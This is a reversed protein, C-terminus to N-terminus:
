TEDITLEPEPYLAAGQVIAGHVVAVAKVLYALFVLPVLPWDRRRYGLWLRMNLWTGVAAYAPALPIFAMAFALRRAYSARPRGPSSQALSPQVRSSQVASPQGVSPEGLRVAFTHLGWRYQHRFVARFTTRDFHVIRPFSTFRFIEGGRHLSRFLAVDEGTRLRENFHLSRRGRNRLKLSMNTTPLHLPPRVECDPRPVSTFWSLVGDLRAWFGDGRGEIAGGIGVAEPHAHHHALHSPVFDAPALCDSDLLIATDVGNRSCWALGTNRAAAPGRSHAHRRWVVAPHTVLPTLAATTTPDGESGDDIVVIRTGAPLGNLVSSLCRHLSELGDKFPVIIATSGPNGQWEATM